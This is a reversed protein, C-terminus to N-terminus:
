QITNSTPSAENIFIYQKGMSDEKITKHKDYFISKIRENGILFVGYNNELLVFNTTQYILKNVVFFDNSTDIKNYPIINEDAKEFKIGVMIPRGGGFSYPINPFLIFTYLGLFPLYSFLILILFVKLPFVGKRTESKSILYLIVALIIFFLLFPLGVAIYRPQFISYDWFGFTQLHINLILFGSIAVFIPVFGLISIYKRILDFLLKM